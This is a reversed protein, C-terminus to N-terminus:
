AFRRPRGEPRLLIKCFIMLSDVSGGPNRNSAAPLGFVHPITGPPAGASPRATIKM